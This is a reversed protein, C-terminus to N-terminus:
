GVGELSFRMCSVNETERGGYGKMFRGIPYGWEYVYSLVGTIEYDM